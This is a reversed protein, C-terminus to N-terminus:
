GHLNEPPWLCAQGTWVFPKLLIQSSKVSFLRTANQKM